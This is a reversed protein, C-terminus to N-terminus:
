LGLEALEDEFTMGIVKHLDAESKMGQKAKNFKSVKNSGSRVPASKAVAKGTKKAAPKTSNKQAMLKRYKLGDAALALQKAPTHAISDAEVGLEALDKMFGQVFETGKDPDFFDPYIEALETNRQELFQAQEKQITEQEKAELASLVQEDAKKAMELQQIEAARTNREEVTQAEALYQALVEPTYAEYQSSFQTRAKGLLDTLETRQQEFAGGEVQKRYAAAEQQRRTIEAQQAKERAVVYAAAAPPLQAFLEKGEDDWRAPPELTEIEQPDNEETENDVETDENQPADDDEAQTAESETGGADPEESQAPQQERKEETDAGEPLGGDEANIEAILQDLDDGTQTDSQETALDNM